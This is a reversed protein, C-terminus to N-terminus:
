ASPKGAVIEQLAAIQEAPDFIARIPISFGRVVRSEIVGTKAKLALQYAGHELQYQEVVEDVPNVLWYEGVGHLAYDEFKTGRDVEETSDSLVEVILDPPPFKMQVPTFSQTKAQDFYCIDPEYDNRTLSVLLKEHGVYGLDHRSVYAMLLSFLKESAQSHRLKVPSQMMVQGNIFEVKDGEAMEEYFRQRREREAQLITEFQEVILPLSPSSSLQEVIQAMAPPLIPENM